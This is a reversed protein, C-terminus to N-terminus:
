AGTVTVRLPVSILAGQCASPADLGMAAAGALTFTATAGAAIVTTPLAAPATFTVLPSTCRDGTAAGEATVSQLRVPSGGTNRVTLVVPATGGPVLSEVPAASALVAASLTTARAEGAGRATPASWFASATGGLLLVVLGASGTVALRRALRSPRRAPSPTSTRRYAATRSCVVGSLLEAEALALELAAEPTPPPADATAGVRVVM